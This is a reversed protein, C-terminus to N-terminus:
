GVPSVPIDGRKNWARLAVVEVRIPGKEGERLIASKFAKAPLADATAKVSKSKPAGKALSLRTPRRGRGSKRRPM